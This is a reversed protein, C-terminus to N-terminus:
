AAMPVSEAQRQGGFLRMRNQDALAVRFDVSAQSYLFGYEDERFRVATEGDKDPKRWRQLTRESKGTHKLVQTHTMWMDTEEPFRKRSFARIRQLEVIFPAVGETTVIEGAVPRMVWRCLQQLDRLAKRSDPDRLGRCKGGIFWFSDLPHLTTITGQKCCYRYLNVAAATERDANEMACLNGYSLVDGHYTGPQVQSRHRQVYDPTEGLHKRLQEANMDHDDHNDLM